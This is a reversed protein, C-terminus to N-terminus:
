PLDFMQLNHKGPLIVALSHGDRSLAFDRIMQGNLLVTLNPENAPSTSEAPAAHAPAPLPVWVLDGDQRELARKILLRSEDPAWAIVGYAVHIRSTLEPHTIDRVELTDIDSFYAAKKGSPSISLGGLYGDLTALARHDEKMLDLAVLRTEGSDTDNREIAVAAGLTSNWALAAFPHRDFLPVLRGGLSQVTSISFMLKPKVSETTFVVTAEDSLWAGDLAGPVVSDGQYVKIEKGDQGLLFLLQGEVTDGLPALQSTELEASLRSGDPSWRLRSITYSFAGAGRAMKEGNVIRRRKGDKELVWIDDRQIEFKQLNFVHRTSYALRGDPAFALATCEDDVETRPAPNQAPAPLCLALALLFLGMGALASAFTRRTKPRPTFTM